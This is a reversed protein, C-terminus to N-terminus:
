NDMICRVSYGWRKISYFMTSDRIVYNIDNYMFRSWATTVGQETSSWWHGGLGLFGCNGNSIREGGPLATFGTENTAGTNPSIWHSTGTEKLKGGAVGEGGLLDTLATWEADSPVHWGTPCLGRTDTVAYWTYLRGYTTVYNEDYGYAWQYKPTSEGSIELGPPTTTGILIGNRYKTTKLNEGMWLQTGIQVTKYINGDIDSIHSLDTKFSLENGYATGEKNTAYVKIYYITNLKLGNIQYTFIGTSTPKGNSLLIGGQSNSNNATTSYYVGYDDIGEGMDIIEGTVKATTAMVESVGKTSIKVERKLENKKCSFVILTLVLLFPIGNTLRNM